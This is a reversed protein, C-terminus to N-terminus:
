EEARLRASVKEGEERREVEEWWGDGEPSRKWEGVQWSEKVATWEEGVVTELEERGEQNDREWIGYGTANKM